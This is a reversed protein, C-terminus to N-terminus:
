AASRRNPVPETQPGVKEEAPRGETSDVVSHVSASGGPITWDFGLVRGLATKRVLSEYMLLSLTLSLSLAVLAKFLSNGQPLLWQLDIHILGLLPHHVLYVWFSAAALYQVAVPAPRAALASWGLVSTTVAAAASVTLVGLALSALPTAGGALHWRGVAVAAITLLLAPGVIRDAARGLRHLYPDRQALVAGGVFFLGSYLWKSPVPLFSHQFGWVVEPRLALVTSALALLSGAILRESHALRKWLRPKKTQALLSGAPQSPHLWRGALALLTVYLFLYQLFWLHSTGWLDRDIESDFKFSRLKIPEVWGEAVWGLVWIHLDLPLIVLCGAALPLLLRRARNAILGRPGRRILTKWALFGALVLFLPMIVVEISWFAWDVTYSAHDRIPWCLGRMPHVLYPVGAHLAVVGIVAAARVYEFGYMRPPVTPRETASPSVVDM